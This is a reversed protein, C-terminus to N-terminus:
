APALNARADRAKANLQVLLKHAVAVRVAMKPKGAQTLRKHFAALVPDHRVVVAAVIVLISRVQSRGGRISRKGHHSGSDRAMPALGALKAIAKNSYTGIEPMEAALTAVTRDAVGKIQRFASDLAQWLPDGRLLQAIRLELDRIHRRIMAVMEDIMSLVTQDEVLRRQNAQAVKAQTLQRLRTVLARLHEQSATPPEQAIIGKAVAFRAIVGADIKDTKELCGMAEAFRRVQRPNAIACPQGAEWLRRFLLKEYGGTAEMVVLEVDHDACFARLQAIGLATRAVRVLPGDPGIRGDLM